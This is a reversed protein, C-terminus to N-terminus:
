QFSYQKPIVEDKLLVMEFLLLLKSVTEAGARYHSYMTAGSNSIM